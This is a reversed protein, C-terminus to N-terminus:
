AASRAKGPIPGHVAASTPIRAKPSGSATLTPSKWMGFM